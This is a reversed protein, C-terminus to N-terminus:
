AKKRLNGLKLWTEKGDKKILAYSYGGSNMTEVITGTLNGQANASFGSFHTVFCFLFLSLSKM